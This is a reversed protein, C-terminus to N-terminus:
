PLVPPLPDLFDFAAANTGGAGEGKVIACANEMSYGTVVESPIGGYSGAPVGLSGFQAFAAGNTGIPGGGFPQWAHYSIPDGNSDFAVTLTTYGGIGTYTGPAEGAPSGGYSYFEVGYPQRTSIGTVTAYSYRRHLEVVQCQGDGFNDTQQAYDSWCIPASNEAIPNPPNAYADAAQLAADTNFFPDNDGSGSGARANNEGHNDWFIGKRYWVLVQFAAYFEDLFEKCVYDGQTWLGHRKVITPLNDAQDEKFPVAVPVGLRPGDMGTPVTWNANNTDRRWVTGTKLEHIAYSWAGSSLDVTNTGSDFFLVHRANGTNTVTFSAGNSSTLTMTRGAFRNLYYPEVIRYPHGSASARTAQAWTLSCTAAATGSAGFTVMRYDTFDPNFTGANTGTGFDVEVTFGAYPSSFGVFRNSKWFGYAEVTPSAPNSDYKSSDSLGTTSGATATGSETHPSGGFWQFDYLDHDVRLWFAGGATATGSLQADRLPQNTKSLQGTFFREYYPATLSSPDTDDADKVAADALATTVTTDAVNDGVYRALDGAAFNDFTNSTRENAFGYPVSFDGGSGAHDIYVTSKGRFYHKGVGDWSNGNTGGWNYPSAPDRAFPDGGGNPFIVDAVFVGPIDYMRKFERPVYRSRGPALVITRADDGITNTGNSQTFLLGDSALLRNTATLIGRGSNYTGDSRRVNYWVRKVHPPLSALATGSLAIANNQGGAGVGEVNGTTALWVDVTARLTPAHAVQYDRMARYKEAPGMIPITAANSYSKREVASGSIFEALRQLGRATHFVNPTECADYAPFGIWTDDKLPTNDDINVTFVDSGTTWVDGCNGNEDWCPVSVIGSIDTESTVDVSQAPRGRVGSADSPTHTRYGDQLGRFFRFPYTPSRGPWARQNTGVGIFSTGVNATLTSNFYILSATATASITARHLHGDSTYFVLDKGLHNTGSWAPNDVRILGPAPSAPLAPTVNTNSALSVVTGSCYDRANPYPMVRQSWDLAGRGIMWYRRGVLDSASSIVRAAIYDDITPFTTEFSISNSGNSAIDLRVVQEPENSDILLTFQTAGRWKGTPDTTGVWPNVYHTTGHDVFWVQATDTFGAATINSPVIGYPPSASGSRPGYTRGARPAPDMIPWLREVTARVIERWFPAWTNVQTGGAVSTGSVPKAPLHTFSM